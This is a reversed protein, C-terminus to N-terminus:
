RQCRPHEEDRDHPQYEADHPQAFAGVAPGTRSDDEDQQAHPHSKTVVASWPRPVHVEVLVLQGYTARGKLRLM